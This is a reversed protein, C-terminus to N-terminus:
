KIREMLKLSVMNPTCRHTPVANIPVFLEIVQSCSPCKWTSGKKTSEALEISKNGAYSLSNIVKNVTLNSQSTQEEKSTEVVPKAKISRTKTKAKTNALLEKAQEKLCKPCLLPKRGRTRERKWVKSCSTCTLSENM